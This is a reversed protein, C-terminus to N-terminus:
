ERLNKLSKSWVNELMYILFFLKYFVEVILVRRLRQKQKNDFNKEFYVLLLRRRKTLEPDSVISEIIRKKIVNPRRKLPVLQTAFSIIHLHFMMSILICNMKKKFM